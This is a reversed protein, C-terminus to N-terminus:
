IWLVVAEAKRMIIRIRRCLITQKKKNKALSINEYEKSTQATSTTHPISNKTVILHHVGERYTEILPPSCLNM